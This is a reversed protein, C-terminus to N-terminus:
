SGVAALLVLELDCAKSITLTVSDELVLTVLLRDTLFPLNPAILINQSMKLYKGIKNFKTLTTYSLSLLFHFPLM